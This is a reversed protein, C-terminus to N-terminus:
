KNSCLSQRHKSLKFIPTVHRLHQERKKKEQIILFFFPKGCRESAGLGLGLQPYRSSRSQVFPFCDINIRFYGAEPATKSCGGAVSM